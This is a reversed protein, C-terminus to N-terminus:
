AYIKNLKSRVEMLAKGLLNLGKWNKEDLILPDDELLGVGWIKDYPSAEVITRNETKFIHFSDPLFCCREAM